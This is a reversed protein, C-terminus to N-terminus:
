LHARRRSRLRCPAQARPRGRGQAATILRDRSLGRVEGKPEIRTAFQIGITESPSADFLVALDVSHDLGREDDAAQSTFTATNTGEGTSTTQSSKIFSQTKELALTTALGVDVNGPLM